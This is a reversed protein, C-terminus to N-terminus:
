VGIIIPRLRSMYYPVSLSKYLAIGSGDIQFVRNIYITYFLKERASYFSSISDYGYKFLNLIPVILFFSNIFFFIGFYFEMAEIQTMTLYIYHIHNILRGKREM